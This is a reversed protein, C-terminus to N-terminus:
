CVTIQKGGLMKNAVCPDYPNIRFGYAEMDEVLKEYFLLASKLCGYLSKQLQIYLVAQGTDYSMFPRYLAPNAAVMLESLTGRFVIRVKDERDASLYSGPIDVVAM